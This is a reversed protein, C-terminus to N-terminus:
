KKWDEIMLRKLRPWAEVFDSIVHWLGIAGLTAALLALIIM